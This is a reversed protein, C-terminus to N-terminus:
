GILGGEFYNKVSHMLQREKLQTNEIACIPLQSSGSISKVLRCNNVPGRPAAIGSKLTLSEVALLKPVIRWEATRIVHVLESGLHPAYIGM